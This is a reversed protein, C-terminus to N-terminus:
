SGRRYFVLASLVVFVVLMGGMVLLDNTSIPLGSLM